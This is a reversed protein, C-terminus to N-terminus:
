VILVKYILMCKGLNLNGPVAGDDLIQNLFIMLYQKFKPSSNKLLENPISDYGSAKGSPLQDLIQGLEHLSYQSCVTQEFQEPEFHAPNQGLIQDLELLTLETQDCHNDLPYIPFRQGQFISEFNNTTLLCSYM